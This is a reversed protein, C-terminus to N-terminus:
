HNALWAAKTAALIEDVEHPSSTKGGSDIDAAIKDLHAIVEPSFRPEYSEAEPLHHQVAEAVFEDLSM